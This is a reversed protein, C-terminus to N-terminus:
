VTRQAMDVLLPLGRRRKPPLPWDNMWRYLTNNCIGLERAVQAVAKGEEQIMQITQLKM